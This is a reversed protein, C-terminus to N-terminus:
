PKPKTTRPLVRVLVTVPKASPSVPKLRGEKYSAELKELLRRKSAQKAEDLDDPQKQDTM